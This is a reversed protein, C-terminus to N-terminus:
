CKARAPEALVPLELARECIEVFKRAAHAWTYRSHMRESAAKGLALAAPYNHYLEEMRQIFHPISVEAGYAIKENAGPDDQPCRWRMPSMRFETLPFGIRADAYDLMASWATWACPAGTAMADTLTLGWGEGQSPFLFAHASNYLSVLERVNLNRTDLTMRGTPLNFVQVEPGPFDSTKVYLEVNSPMRGTRFWDRWADLLIQFGKRSSKNIDNGVFLFRFPEDPAPKRRQYFPFLEPDIGLPCVEIPGTFYDLCALRSQECPVVLVAAEGVNEGWVLPESLETATFLLNRDGPLPDFRNPLQVHIALDHSDKPDTTVSVGAAQVCEKLKMRYVSMGYANGARWGDVAWLLKM